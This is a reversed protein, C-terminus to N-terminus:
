RSTGLHSLVTTVVFEPRIAEGRKTQAAPHPSTPVHPTNQTFIQILLAQGAMSSEHTWSAQPPSMFDALSAAARLRACKPIIAAKATMAMTTKKRQLLRVRIGSVEPQTM